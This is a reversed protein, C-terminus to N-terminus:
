TEELCGLVLFHSFVVLRNESSGCGRSSRGGPYLQPGFYIHVWGKTGAGQGKFSLLLSLGENKLTM